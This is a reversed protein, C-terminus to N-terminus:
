RRSSSGARTRASRSSGRTSRRSRSRPAPPCRSATPPECRCPRGVTERVAYSPRPTTVTVALEHARWGVQIEAIGLKFAPRGLDVTATPRVDGARGRVALVSVFVNPAWERRVPLEIVPEVGSLRVVRAEGVGEREITVLATAEAFPMRVQFRATQGPEYRPAEPLVDIRDSDEVPFWMRDKGRIWADAHTSARRRDPDTVTAVLLLRGTAAPVGKCALRGHRDTRGKCHRGVRKVEEVHDYAYFGGVLRKRHSYLRSSFVDVVV